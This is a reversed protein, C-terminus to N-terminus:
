DSGHNGRYIMIRGRGAHKATYLARDAAELLAEASAFRVGRELHTAVGVSVTMRVTKGDSVLFPTDRISSLVREMVTKADATRTDTLLVIFEEGGYRAVHDAQRIQCILRRAVEIIVRDGAAHGHTDNVVKFRDIDVFAVSFPHRDHAARAFTQELVRELYTRNFLGTMADRRAQEELAATRRELARTRTDTDVASQLLQLNRTVLIEKASDEANAIQRRDVLQTDFLAELDPIHRVMTTILRQSQALDIDLWAQAPECAAELAQPTAGELWADAIRVAVAVCVPLTPTNAIPEPPFNAIDHSVRASECIMEPLQWERLLWAGAEAHNFGFAASERRLLDEHSISRGHLIAYADTFEGEMVLVGIDQLLGALFFEEPQAERLEVALTRCALGTLLSRRWYSTMDFGSDHDESVARRLSFSLSLTTTANLGLLNLAQSLNSVARRRGYFSSNSVRLLKTALAPDCATLEAFQALTASPDNALDVLQLAM